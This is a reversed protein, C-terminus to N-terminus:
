PKVSGGFKNNMVVRYADQMREDYEIQKEIDSFKILKAEIFTV